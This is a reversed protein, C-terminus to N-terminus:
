EILFSSIQSIHQRLKRKSFHCICAFAHRQVFSLGQSIEPHGSILTMFYSLEFCSQEIINALM